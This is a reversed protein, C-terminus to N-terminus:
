RPVRGEILEVIQRAPAPGPAAEVDRSADAAGDDRADLQRPLAAQWAELRLPLRLLRTPAATVADVLARTFVGKGGVERAVAGAATGCLIQLNGVAVDPFPEGGEDPGVWDFGPPIRVMRAGAAGAFCCDLVVRLPDGTFAVERLLEIMPYEADAAELILAPGVRRGHGAFYFLVTDASTREELARRLAAHVVDLTAAAGTRPEISGVADPPLLARLMAEMSRADAEAGTLLPLGRTDGDYNCGVIVAHLKRM